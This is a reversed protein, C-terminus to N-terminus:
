VKTHDGDDPFGADALFRIPRIMALDYLTPTYAEDL